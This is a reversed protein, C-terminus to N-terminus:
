RLKLFHDWKQFGSNFKNIVVFEDVSILGSNDIDINRFFRYLTHIDGDSYGIIRATTHM